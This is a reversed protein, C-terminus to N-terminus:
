KGPIPYPNLNFTNEGSDVTVTGYRPTHMLVDDSAFISILNGAEDTPLMFNNYTIFGAYPGAFKIKGEALVNKTVGRTKMISQFQTSGGLYIFGDDSYNYFTLKLSYDITTDAWTASGGAVMYGYYDGLQRVPETMSLDFCVVDAGKLLAAFVAENVVQIATDLTSGTVVLNPEETGKNLLGETLGSEPDPGLPDQRGKNCAFFILCLILMPFLSKIRNM